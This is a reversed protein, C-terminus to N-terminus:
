DLESALAQHHTLSHYMVGQMLLLMPLLVLYGMGFTVCTVLLAFLSALINIFLITVKYGNTLRWSERLAEIPGLGLDVIAYQAFQLGLGAVLWPVFVIALNLFLIGMAVEFDLGGVALGAMAGMGPSISALLALGIILQVLLAPLFSRGESVVMSAEADQGRTVHIFIRVAGLTLFLTVVQQVITNALSLLGMIVEMGEGGVEGALDLAFGSMGFVLGPAILAGTALLVVGLNATLVEWCRTLIDGVDMPVPALQDVREPAAASAELTSSPAFPNQDDSM